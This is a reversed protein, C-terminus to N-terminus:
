GALEDAIERDIILTNCLGAAAVARVGEVKNRHAAAVIVARRGHAAERLQEVSPRYVDAQPDGLRAALAPQVDNGDRDLPIMQHIAVVGLDRFARARATDAAKFLRDFPQTRGRLAETSNSDVGFWDWPRVSGFIIDANLAADVLSLALEQIPERISDALRNDGLGGLRFIHSRSRGINFRSALLDVLSSSDRFAGTSHLVLVTSYLDVPRKTFRDADIAQIAHEVTRGTSVAISGAGAAKTELFCSAALAVRANADLGPARPHVVWVDRLSFKKRIKTSLTDLTTERTLLELKGSHRKNDSVVPSSGWDDTTAYRLAERLLAQSTAPVFQLGCTRTWLRERDALRPAVIWGGKFKGHLDYNLHRLLRRFNDDQGSYGLVLLNRSALVGRLSELILPHEREFLDFDASSLVLGPNPRTIDGHIKYITIGGRDVNSVDMDSTVVNYSVAGDLALEVGADWNTTIIMDLLEPRRSVLQRLLMYSSMSALEESNALFRKIVDEISSRRISAHSELFLVLDEMSLSEVNLTTDQFSGRFADYLVEKLGAKDRQKRQEAVEALSFGAGLFIAVRRSAIAELLSADFTPVTM